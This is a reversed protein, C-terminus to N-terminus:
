DAKDKALWYVVRALKKLIVKCAAITTAADIADSVAQWTPLNDILAQAKAEIRAAEAQEAAIREAEIQPWVAELEALSPTPRTELENPKIGAYSNDWVAGSWDPYIKKICMIINM